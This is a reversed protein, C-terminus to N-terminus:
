SGSAASTRENQSGQEDTLFDVEEKKNHTSHYLLLATAVSDSTASLIEAAFIVANVPDTFAAIPTGAPKSIISLLADQIGFPQSALAIGLVPVPRYPKIWAKIASPLVAAKGAAAIFVRAGNKVRAICYQKLAEPNRDASIASLTWSVGLEKLASVIKDWVGEKKWQELDSKSGLIFVVEKPALKKLM